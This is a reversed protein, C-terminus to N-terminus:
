PGGSAKSLKKLFPFLFWLSALLCCTALSGFWAIQSSGVAALAVVYVDLSFAAILPVMASTILTSSLNIMNRSVKGREALRNYAAPTMLLGMSLTLFGLAILYASRSGQSLAEFKSNFVAMTQFGFLAQIGPLVKRAEEIITRMEDKLPEQEEENDDM